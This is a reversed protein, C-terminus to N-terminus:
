RNTDSTSGHWVVTLLDQVAQHLQKCTWSRAAHKSTEEQFVQEEGFVIQLEVNDRKDCGSMQTTEHEEQKEEQAKKKM